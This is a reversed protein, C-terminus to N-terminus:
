RNLMIKTIRLLLLASQRERRGEGEKVGERTSGGRETHTHGKAQLVNQGSKHMEREKAM